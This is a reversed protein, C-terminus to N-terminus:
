SASRSTSYIIHASAVEALAAAGAQHRKWKAAVANKAANSLFLDDAHSSLVV